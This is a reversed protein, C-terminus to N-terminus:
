FMPLYMISLTSILVLGGACIGVIAPQAGRREALAALAWLAPFMTVVFRPLSMFPRDPFPMLLPFLLSLWLYVAYSPRARRLLWIGGAVAFVLFLLDITWYGWPNQGLGTVGMKTGRWVTQWPWSFARLWGGQANFPVSWDGAQVQWYALYALTGGAPLVAAAAMAAARRPPTAEQRRRQELLQHLAEVALVACMAIGVSRTGAAAAGALGAALWRGQRALYLAAVVALLFVPESFPSFLYLSTPFVALFLVTHRAMATSYERETLRFLLLMTAFLAANSVYFGALLWRDGLLVGMARVLLPFLPFFAPSGDATSYGASAIRLFWAADAREWAVFAQHWGASPEPHPWGPVDIPGQLPFMSPVLLGLLFLALRVTVFVLLCYGAVAGWSTAAGPRQEAADGAPDAAVGSGDVQQSLAGM